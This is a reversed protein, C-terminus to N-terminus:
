SRRKKEGARSGEKGEYVRKKKTLFGGCGRGEKGGRDFPKQLRWPVLFYSRKKSKGKGSESRRGMLTSISSGGKKEGTLIRGESDGKAGYIGLFGEEKGTFCFRKGRGEEGSRESGLLCPPSGKEGKLGRRQERKCGV